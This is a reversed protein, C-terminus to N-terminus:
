EATTKNPVGERTGPPISVKLVFANPYDGDDLKEYIGATRAVELVKVRKRDFPAPQGSEDMVQVVIWASKALSPSRPKRKRPTAAAAAPEAHEGNPATPIPQASPTPQAGGPVRPSTTASVQNRRSSM